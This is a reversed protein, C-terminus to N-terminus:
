SELLDKLKLLAVKWAAREREVDTEKRLKSVQLAIQAKEEGKVYFGMELRASRNWSGRFYKDKTQSSLEFAGKPFWRRRKAANATASYLASLSVALTKSVAVSFGSAKEHRVRLGRSREYEVTVMQSWWSSVRYKKSLMAAIAKHGLTTAGEKDLATFWGSWDKGTRAKVSADSMAPVYSQRKGAM